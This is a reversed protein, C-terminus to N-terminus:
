PAPVPPNTDFSNGQYVGMRRAPMTRNAPPAANPRVSAGASAPLNNDRAAPALTSDTRASTPGNGPLAAEGASSRYTETGQPGSPDSPWASALPLASATVACLVATRVLM